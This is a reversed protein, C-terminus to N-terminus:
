SRPLSGPSPISALELPAGPLIAAQNRAPTRYGSRTSQKGGFVGISRRAHHFVFRDSYSRQDLGLHIPDMYVNSLVRCHLRRRTYVVGVISGAFLAEVGAIVAYVAPIALTYPIMRRKGIQMFLAIGTVALHFLAYLILTWLLTYRWSDWISYLSCDISQPPWCLAPFRPRNYGHPPYNTCLSTAM